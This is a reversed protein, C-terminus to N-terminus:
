RRKRREIVRFGFIGIGDIFRKTTRLGRGYQRGDIYQRLYYGGNLKVVEWVKTKSYPDQYFTREVTSSSM